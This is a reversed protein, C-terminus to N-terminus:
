DSGKCGRYSVMMKIRMDKNGMQTKQYRRMIRAITVNLPVSLVLILVGAWISPGLLQHLFTLALCVQLPASWVHHLNPFLDMIRTTDVAM